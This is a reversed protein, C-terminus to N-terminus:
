AIVREIASWARVIRMGTCMISVILLIFRIERWIRCGGVVMSVALMLISGTVWDGTLKMYSAGVIASLAMNAPLSLDIGGVIMVVGMGLALLGLLSTQLSVNVLNNYRYFNPAILWVAILIAALFALTLLVQRSPLRAPPLTASVETSM